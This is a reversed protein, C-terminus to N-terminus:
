PAKSVLYAAISIMDDDTLKDVVAKMLPTMAGARTGTKIDNLQRYVYMPSRGVIAPIDGLGKLEAGHCITCTITKGGGGTMVLTEGKKISGTPVHAVFGVRPDRSEASHDSQPLEIIRNGIPETGGHEVPFRMAGNGLYSKPVTDTEVVKYWVPAKLSGFYEAAAKFDAEGLAKAIPIMSTARAGKRVGSKMEEMQRIFYGMPLGAIGASEPHGGGSTLHCLACARANAEKRGHMVIEPMPGHDQPYWDPPNFGDDIQAQTYSKTSGPLTLLKANDPPKPPPNVPYAWEPLSQAHVPATLFGLLALPLSLAIVAKM